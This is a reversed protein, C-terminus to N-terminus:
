EPIERMHAPLEFQITGISEGADVPLGLNAVLVAVLVSAGMRFTLKSVDLDKRAKTPREGAFIVVGSDTTAAGLHGWDHFQRKPVRLKSVMSPFPEDSLTHNDISHAFENRLKRIVQLDDYVDRDIWGACFAANLKASFTSFPGSSSFLASRADSNGRSFEHALKIRLLYDSRSAVLIVCARDSEQSLAESVRNGFDISIHKENTM